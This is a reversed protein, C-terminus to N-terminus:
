PKPRFMPDRMANIVGNKPVFKRDEKLHDKVGNYIGIIVLERAKERQIVNISTALILLKFFLFRHLDLGEKQLAEALQLQPDALILLGWGREDVEGKENVRM